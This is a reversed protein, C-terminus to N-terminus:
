SLLAAIYFSIYILCITLAVIWPRRINWLAFMDAIQVACCLYFTVIYATFNYFDCIMFIIMALGMINFAINFLRRRPNGAYLKVSNYIALIFAVVATIGLNVLSFFRAGTSMTVDFLNILRPMAFNDLPIIGMGVTVWYPALLGLALAVAEKIHFCKFLLAIFVMPVILFLFAYQIMSGLSLITAMVFVEQTANRSKFCSFLIALCALAAPAVLSSSTLMGGIWPVSTSMLLFLASLLTRSAPVFAYAKNIFYLAVATAGLLALNIIWGSIPTLPWLNPSPLCIGMSEVLPRPADVWRSLVCMTVAIVTVIAVNGKDLRHTM